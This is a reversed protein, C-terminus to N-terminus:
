NPWRHAARAGGELSDQVWENWGKTKDNAEQAEAEIVQQGIDSCLDDAREDAHQRENETPGEKAAGILIKAVERAKKIANNM